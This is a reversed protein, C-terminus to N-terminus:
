VVNLIERSARDVFPVFKQYWKQWEEEGRGQKMSNEWDSLSKFEFELILRYSDGTLDTLIRSENFGQDGAIEIGEKLLAKAEKAKGFKLNFINRIVIM